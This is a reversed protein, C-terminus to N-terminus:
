NQVVMPRIAQIYKSLLLVMELRSVPNNLSFNAPLIGLRRAYELPQAFTAESINPISVPEITIPQGNTFYASSTLLMKVMEAFSVPNNPYFHDGIGTVIGRNFAEGIVKSVESDDQPVDTFHTNNHTFNSSNGNGICNSGMAIKLLEFRTLFNNPGFNGDAYGHILHSSSDSVFGLSTLFNLDTTNEIDVFNGHGTTGASLCVPEHPQPVPLDFPNNAPASVSALFSSGANASSSSSSSSSGSYSSSSSHSSSSGGYNVTGSSGGGGSSGSSATRIGRNGADTSNNTVITILIHTSGGTISTGAPNNITLVYTGENLSSNINGNEDFEVDEPLSGGNITLTAGTYSDPEGSGQLGNGNTDTFIHFLLTGEGLLHAGADINFNSYTALLDTITVHGSNDPDSDITMDFGQNAPSFGYGDPLGSFQLQLNEYVWYVNGIIEAPSDTTFALHATGSSTDEFPGVSYSTNNWLSGSTGCGASYLINGDAGTLTIATNNAFCTGSTTFTLFHNGGAHIIDCGSNFSLDGSFNASPGTCTPLIISLNYAGFSDTTTSAVISDDELNVLDVDVNDIGVEESDQIGNVNSDDFVFDGLTSAAVYAGADVHEAEAGYGYATALTRGDGDIVDSDVSDDGGENPPSFSYNLPLQNFYVYYTGPNIIAFEYHGSPDVTTPGAILSGFPNYVTVQINTIIGESGDQIGAQNMDYFIGGSITLMHYIGITPAASVSSPSITILGVVTTGTTAFFNRWGTPRDVAIFYSEGAMVVSDDFSYSGDSATTTEAITSSDSGLLLVPAGGVVGTELGDQTGNHDLDEFILGAIGEGVAHTQPIFSLSIIGLFSITLLSTACEYWFTRKQLLSLITM